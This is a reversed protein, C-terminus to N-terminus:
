WAQATCATISACPPPLHRPRSFLPPFSPLHRSPFPCLSWQWAAFAGFGAHTSQLNNLANRMDGEATFILAELGSPDYPISEACLCHPFSVLPSPTRLDRLHSLGVHWSRFLVLHRMWFGPVDRPGRAMKGLVLRLM